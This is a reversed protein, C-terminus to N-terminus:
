RNKLDALRQAISRLIKDDETVTGIWCGLGSETSKWYVRKKIRGEKDAYPFDFKQAPSPQPMVVALVLLQTAASLFAELRFEGPSEEKGIVAVIGIAHVLIWCAPAEKIGRSVFFAVQEGTLHAWLEASDYIFAGAYIDFRDVDLPVMTVPNPTNTKETPM